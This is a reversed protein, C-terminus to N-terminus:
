QYVVVTRERLLVRAETQDWMVCRLRFYYKCVTGTVTVLVLEVTIALQALTPRPTSLFFGEMCVYMSVRGSRRVNAEGVEGKGFNPSFKLRLWVNAHRRASPVLCLLFFMMRGCCSAASKYGVEAVEDVSSDTDRTKLSVRRRTPHICPHMYSPHAIQEPLRPPPVSALNDVRSEWPTGMVNPDGM